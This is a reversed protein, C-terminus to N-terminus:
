FYFLHSTDFKVKIYDDTCNRSKELDLDLFTLNVAHYYDVSILWECNQNHPYNQPYNASHIVGSQGIFRGGCKSPVTQYIADFGHSAYVTETKFRILM